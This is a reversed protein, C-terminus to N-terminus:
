AEAIPELGKPGVGLRGAKVWGRRVGAQPRLMFLDGNEGTLARIGCSRQALEAHGKLHAQTGHTPVILEPKLWGYLTKLEEQAPHGSAHIQHQDDGIVEVGLRKLREVVGEILLENGPIARASFLVRDGRELLLDPHRNRSLRDLAAGPDGQSGTAVALCAEGPLYAADRSDIYRREPNWHGSAAAAQAMTRLSRGLLTPFRDYRAALRSFLHLRAINSGFATIIVRGPADKILHSLDAELAGESLSYGPTLANTSDGVLADVGADGLAKLAREPPPTGLGPAGDLKWDGTHFVTGAATELLVAQAEPLSHTMTLYRLRFPGVTFPGDPPLVTLPVKGALGAERLKNALVAAAFPTCYVPCRLRPWLHAVAGLHDEHAHTLVLGCLAGREGEIFAPDAMQVHPDKSGHEAFTVGCDIMLWHDDHGYLNLNMGIEGTGGLPLFWLDAPGPRARNVLQLLPRHV